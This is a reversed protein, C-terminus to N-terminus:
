RYPELFSLVIESGFPRNDGCDALLDGVYRIKLQTHAIGGEETESCRDLYDDLAVVQIRQSLQGAQHLLFQRGDVAQSIDVRGQLTAM